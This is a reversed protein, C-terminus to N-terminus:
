ALIDGENYYGTGREGMARLRRLRRMV